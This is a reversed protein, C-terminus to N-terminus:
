SQEVLAGETPHKGPSAARKAPAKSVTKFLGIGAATAPKEEEDVSQEKRQAAAAAAADAMIQPSCHPCM